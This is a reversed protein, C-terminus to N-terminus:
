ACLECCNEDGQVCKNDNICVSKLIHSKTYEITWDDFTYSERDVPLRVPGADTEETQIQIRFLSYYASWFLEM